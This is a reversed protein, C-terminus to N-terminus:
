AIDDAVIEDWIRCASEVFGPCRPFPLGTSMIEEAEEPIAFSKGDLLDKCVISGNEEIFKQKFEALKGVMIANQEAAGATNYGYVASLGIIAASVCGCVDGHFCGGGLGATIKVLLDRDLGLVEAIHTIVTQSCHYGDGMMLQTAREKTMKEAM